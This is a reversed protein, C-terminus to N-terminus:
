RDTPVPSPMFRKAIGAEEFIPRILDDIKKGSVDLITQTYIHATSRALEDARHVAAPAVAALLYSMERREDALLDEYEDAQKFTLDDHRQKWWLKEIRERIRHLERDSGHVHMFIDELYRVTPNSEPL